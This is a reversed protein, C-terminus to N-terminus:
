FLSWNETVTLDSIIPNFLFLHKLIQASDYSQKQMEIVQPDNVVSDIYFM